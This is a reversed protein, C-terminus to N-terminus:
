EFSLDEYNINSDVWKEPDFPQGVQNARHYGGPIDGLQAMRQKTGSESKPRLNGAIWEQLRELDHWEVAVLAGMGREGLLPGIGTPGFAKASPGDVSKSDVVKGLKYAGVLLSLKTVKKDGDVVVTKLIPSPSVVAAGKGCSIAKSTFPVYEFEYIIKEPNNVPDTPRPTAVLGIYLVDLVDSRRTDYIDTVYRCVGGVCVNFADEEHQESAEDPVEMRVGDLRWANLELEPVKKAIWPATEVDIPDPVLRAQFDKKRPNWENASETRKKLLEEFVKGDSLLRPHEYTPVFGRRRDEVAGGSAKNTGLKFLSNVAELSACVTRRAHQQSRVVSEAREDSRVFVPHGGSPLSDLWAGDVVRTYPIADNTRKGPRASSTPIGGKQSPLAITADGPAAAAGAGNAFAPLLQPVGRAGPRRAAALYGELGGFPDSRETVAQTPLM